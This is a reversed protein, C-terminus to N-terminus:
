LEIHWLMYSFLAFFQTNKYIRRKCLPMVGEFISAFHHCESKIQLVYFSLWICFKLEIHWLMYSFLASFPSYELNWFLCLEKLFQRLTIVSLRSRYYLTNWFVHLLKKGKSFNSTLRSSYFYYMLNLCIIMCNQQNYFIRFIVCFLDMIVDYVLDWYNLCMGM